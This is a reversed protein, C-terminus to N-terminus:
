YGATLVARAQAQSSTQQLIKQREQEWLDPSIECFCQVVRPDFQRNSYDILEQRAREYPLRKRYPRDSTMADFTDAVTFIRAGLPIDESSKGTPYGSGDWREQHHLVIERAQALFQINELIRYGKEPHLRMVEWEEETLKAPKRLIADPIGIKGIDHLLAGWRMQSLDPEVVGMREALIYTFRAVRISHDQTETDRIDLAMVLAELTVRYADELQKTREQVKLELGVQYDRNERVMQQKELIRDITIVVEELNFPKTLYDSAGLRIARIATDTDVVGTVMVVDVDPHSARIDQLLALGDKGPMDIDALVVDLETTSGIQTLADFADTATSCHHGIDTLRESLVERIVREDDVILVNAPKM